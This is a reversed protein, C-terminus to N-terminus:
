GQIPLVALHRRGVAGIGFGFFLEAANEDKLGPVHIMSDFEHRLMRRHLVAVDELNPWGPVHVFDDLCALLSPSLDNCGSSPELKDRFRCLAPARLFRPWRQLSRGCRSSDVTELFCEDLM